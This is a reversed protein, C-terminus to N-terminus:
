VKNCKCVNKTNRKKICLLLSKGNKKKIQSSFQRRPILNFTPSGVYLWWLKEKQVCLELRVLCVSYVPCWYVCVHVCSVNTHSRQDVHWSFRSTTAISTYSGHRCLSALTNEGIKWLNYTHLFLVVATSSTIVTRSYWFITTGYKIAHFLFLSFSLLFFSPTIFESLQPFCLQELYFDYPLLVDTYLLPLAHM